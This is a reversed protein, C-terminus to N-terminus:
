THLSIRSVWFLLSHIQTLFPLAPLDMCLPFFIHQPNSARLEQRPGAVAKQKDQNFWLVESHQWEKVTFSFVPYETGPGLCLFLHGTGGMNRADTFTLIKYRMIWTLFKTVMRSSKRKRLGGFEMPYFGLWKIEETAILSSWMFDTEMSEVTIKAGSIAGRSYQLWGCHMEGFRRKGGALGNEGCQLQFSVKFACIIIKIERILINLQVWM